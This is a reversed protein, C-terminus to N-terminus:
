EFTAGKPGRERAPASKGDVVDAPPPAKTPTRATKPKVTTAIYIGAQVPSMSRVRELELPNKALYDTILPGEEDNLIFSAVDDSIGYQAVRQGADRLSVEDIGFSKARESYAQVQTMLEQQKAQQIRQQEQQQYQQEVLKRADYEAAKKIAEDRQSIKDEYDDDWADPPPPIDPRLDQPLKAQLEQIRREAEHRKREEERAKFVKEGIAKDFIAQQEPTFQVKEAEGTSSGPEQEVPPESDADAQDDTVQDDVAEVDEALMEENM